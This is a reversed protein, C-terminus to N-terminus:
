GFFRSVFDVDADEEECDNPATVIIGGTNLDNVRALITSDVALSRVM